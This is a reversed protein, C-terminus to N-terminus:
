SFSNSPLALIVAAEKSLCDDNPALNKKRKGDVESSHDVILIGLTKIRKSKSTTQPCL